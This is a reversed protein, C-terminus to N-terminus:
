RDAPERDAPDRPAPRRPAAPGRTVRRRYALTALGALVAAGGVGLLLGDQLGATGGGGTEPALPYQTTRTVAPTHTVVVTKTVRPTASAQPRHSASASPRATATATGHSASSSAAATGHSATSSAVATGHSATSAATATGHSATSSATTTSSGAGDPSVIRTTAPAVTESTQPTPTFVPSSTGGICASVTVALLMAGAASRGAMLWAGKAAVPPTLRMKM